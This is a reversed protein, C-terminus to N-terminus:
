RRQSRGSRRAARVAIGKVSMEKPSNWTFTVSDKEDKGEFNKGSHVLTISKDDDWKGMHAHTVGLNTVEYMRGEGAAIDWGYLFVLEQKPMAKGMDISSKCLVAWGGAAKECKVDMKGKMTQDGM